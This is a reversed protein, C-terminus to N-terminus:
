KIMMYVETVWKRSDPEEQPNTIYAEYSPIKSSESLKNARAYSMAASWANGIHKYDGTFTVKVAKSPVLEGVYYPEGWTLSDKVPVAVTYDCDGAMFDFKHYISLAKDFKLSDQMARENLRMFAPAMSQEMENLKCQLREGIYKISSTEVVGDIQVKSAVYGIEALDKLMKLGREYDMGIFPEMMKTMFRLFFPMEGQMGWTVSTTSDTLSEFDWYVMSKSEMPEKFIIDQSIHKLNEIKTHKIEGSGVLKGAWVYSDDEKDGSGSIEVKADPEMCLWPSWVTWQNFDKVLIFVEEVPKNIEVTRKVDFKGDLTSLWILAAVIAVAVIVLISIIFKKM